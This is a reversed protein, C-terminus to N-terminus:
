RGSSLVSEISGEIIEVARDVDPAGVILPPVFRLTDGGATNILLGRELAAAMIKPALESGVVAGVMLGMGRVEKIVGGKEALGRLGAQLREGMAVVNALFEPTSVIDLVTLGGRCALPNGGFTSAHSGKKFGESLKETSLMVGLPLGGAIGKAWTAIDPVVGFSEYAWLTGLRGVGCQVEDFILVAGSVDCLRRAAALYERTAPLVGGEGQVPELFIACTTGDVAAELAAVDNFPVHVFGAPMPDFGEWYKPQGTAALAQLTRGHFSQQACVITRRGSQAVVGHYRRALKLAAENAEAGSNCFFVRDAFSQAVLREQLLLQPENYFLNSVHLLKGVQSQLAEVLAPHGYGLCNVAIGALFDLYRRGERDVLFVGDGHDFVIPSPGYNRSTTQTASEVLSATSREPALKRVPRHTHM